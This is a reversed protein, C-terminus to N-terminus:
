NILTILMMGLYGFVTLPRVIKVGPTDLPVLIM